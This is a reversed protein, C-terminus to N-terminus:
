MRTEFGNLNMLFNRCLGNFCRNLCFFCRKEGQSFSINTMERAFICLYAASFCWFNVSFFINLFIICFFFLIIAPGDGFLDSGMKKGSTCPYFNEPSFVPCYGMRFLHGNEFIFRGHCMMDCVLM